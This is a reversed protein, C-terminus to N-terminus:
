MDENSSIKTLVRIEIGPDPYLITLIPKTEDLYLKVNESLMSSSIPEIYTHSFSVRFNESDKLSSTFKVKEKKRFINKTVVKKNGSIYKFILPKDQLDQIASIESAGSNKVDSIMKKYYKGTIVLSIMYKETDLFRKEDEMGPKESSLEVTSEEDLGDDENRLIVGLQRRYASGDKLSRFTITNYSKDSRAIILGLDKSNLTLCKEKECYYRVCKNADICIRVENGKHHDLCWIIVCDKRFTIQLNETALSKLLAFIKKFIVCNNHVMEILSSSHEPSEVIGLIPKETKEPNKRPRGPKKKEKKEERSM